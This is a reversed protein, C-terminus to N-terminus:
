APDVKGGNQNSGVVTAITDKYKEDPFGAALFFEGNQVTDINALPLPVGRETVKLIVLDNILDYAAVGEVTWETKDTISIKCSYTWSAQLLTFTQQM